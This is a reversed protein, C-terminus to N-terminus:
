SIMKPIGKLITPIIKALSISTATFKKMLYQEELMALKDHYPDINILGFIDRLQELIEAFKKGKFSIMLFNGDTPETFFLVCPLNNYRIKLFKAITYSWESHEEISFSGILPNTKKRQFFIILCNENSMDSLEKRHKLIIRIMEEDSTHALIICYLPYYRIKKFEEWWQLWSQYLADLDRLRNLDEITAPRTRPPYLDNDYMYADITLHAEFMYYSREVTEDAGNNLFDQGSILFDDESLPLWPNEADDPADKERPDLKRDMPALRGV